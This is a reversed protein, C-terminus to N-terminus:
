KKGLEEYTLSVGKANLELKEAAEAIGLLSVGEKSIQANLGLTEINVDNSYQKAVMRICTSGCDIFGFQNYFAVKRLGKKNISSFGTGIAQLSVIFIFYSRRNPM